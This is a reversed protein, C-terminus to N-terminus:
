YDGDIISIEQIADWSLFSTKQTTKFVVGYEDQELITGSLVFTNLKLVLKVNKDVFNQRM